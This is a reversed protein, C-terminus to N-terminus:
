RCGSLCLTLGRTFRLGGRGGKACRHCHRAAHHPLLVPFPLPLLVPFPLRTMATGSGQSGHGPCAGTSSAALAETLLSHQEDPAALEAHLRYFATSRLVAASPPTGRRRAAQRVLDQLLATRLTQLLRKIPPCTHPRRPPALRSTGRNVRRGTRPRAPPMRAHVPAEVDRARDSGCPHM